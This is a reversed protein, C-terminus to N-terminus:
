CPPPLPCLGLSFSSSPNLGLSKQLLLSYSLGTPSSGGNNSNRVSLTEAISTLQVVAGPGLNIVFKMPPQEVIM